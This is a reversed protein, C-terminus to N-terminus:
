PRAPRQRRRHGKALLAALRMEGFLDLRNNSAAGDTGLGVNIGLQRM